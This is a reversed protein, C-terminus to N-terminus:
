QKDKLEIYLRNPSVKYAVLNTCLEIEQLAKTCVESCFWKKNNHHLGIVFGLIGLYDYKKGNVSKCYERVVREETETVELDVYKWISRKYKHVKFRTSNEYQSASFMMGDSFLIEVHSYSNVWEGNFMQLLPSTWWRILKDFINGKRNGYFIVKM